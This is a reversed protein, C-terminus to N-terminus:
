MIIQLRQKNIIPAYGVVFAAITISALLPSLYGFLAIYHAGITQSICLPLPVSFGLVNLVISLAQHTHTDYMYVYTHM